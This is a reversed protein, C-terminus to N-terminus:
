VFQFLNLALIKYEKFSSIGIFSYFFFHEHGETVEASRLEKCNVPDRKCWTIRYGM